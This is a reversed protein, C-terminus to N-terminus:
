RRMRDVIALRVPRGHLPAISLLLGWRGSMGFGPVRHRYRGPATRAFRGMLQEGMRMDLMAVTLSVRAAVPRGHARLTVTAPNPRSARNPAMRLTIVYGHVHTTAQIAGPGVRASVHAPRPVDSRGWVPQRAPAPVSNATPRASPAPARLVLIAGVATLGAILVVALAGVLHLPHSARLPM